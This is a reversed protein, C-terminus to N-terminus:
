IHILSLYHLTLGRRRVATAAFVAAAGALLVAVAPAMVASAFTYAVHASQMHVLADGMWPVRAEGATANATENARAGRGVVAVRVTYVESRLTNIHNLTAAHCWASANPCYVHLLQGRTDAVVETTGDARRGTIVVDVTVNTSLM